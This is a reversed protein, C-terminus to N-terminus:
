DTDNFTELTAELGKRFRRETLTSSDFDTSFGFNSDTTDLAGPVRAVDSGLTVHVRKDTRMRKLFDEMKGDFNGVVAEVMAKKDVTPKAPVVEEQTQHVPLQAVAAPPVEPKGASEEAGSASLVSSSAATESLELVKFSAETEDLQGQKFSLQPLQEQSVPKSIQDRDASKSGTNPPLSAHVIAASSTSIPQSESIGEGLASDKDDDVARIDDLTKDADTSMSLGLDTSSFDANQVPGTELEFDATPSDKAAIRQQVRELNKNLSGKLDRSFM